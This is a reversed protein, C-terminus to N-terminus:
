ANIHKKYDAATMLKDLEVAQFGELKCLWGAGYPDSNIKTPDDKLADNAASVTGGIPAYVDSAAKTSELVCFSSGASVTKGVAPVDVFVIEGLESQAFETVGVTAVSGEVLVWEHDKTYKLTDPVNTM